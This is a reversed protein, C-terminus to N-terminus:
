VSWSMARTVLPASITRWLSRIMHSSFCTGCFWEVALWQRWSWRYYSGRPILFKIMRCAHKRTNWVSKEIANPGVVGFEIKWVYLCKFCATTRNTSDAPFRWSARLLPFGSCSDARCVARSARPASSM